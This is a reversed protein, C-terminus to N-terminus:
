NDPEVSELLAISREKLDDWNLAGLVGDTIIGKSDVFITSPIPRIEYNAAVQGDSDFLVPFTFGYAQAFERASQVTDTATLNVALIQLQDGYQKNLKVFSPAEDKCPGCWSAWFNLVVPKGRLEKLDYIKGDMGTLTFTPATYSIEPKEPISKVQVKDKTLESSEVSVNRNKSDLQQYLVAGILLTFTAVIIWNRWRRM